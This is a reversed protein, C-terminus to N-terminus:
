QAAYSKLESLFKPLFESSTLCGAEIMNKLESTTLNMAKSATAYSYPLVENLQMLDDQSVRGKIAIRELASLGTKTMLPDLRLALATSAFAKLIDSNKPMIHSLYM